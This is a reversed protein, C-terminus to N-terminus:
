SGVPENGEPHPPLLSQEEEMKEQCKAERLALIEKQASNIKELSLDEASEYWSLTDNAEFPNQLLQIREGQKM